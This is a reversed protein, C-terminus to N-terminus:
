MADNDCCAFLRANMYDTQGRARAILNQVGKSGRSGTQTACQVSKQQRKGTTVALAKSGDGAAQQVVCIRRICAWM